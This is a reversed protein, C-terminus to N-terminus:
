PARAAGVRENGGLDRLTVVGTFGAQVLMERVAEGQDYGHELAILGGSTLHARAGAIIERLCGLGDGGDTLAGAPERGLAALHADGAAIYPPNSVIADFAAGGLPGYWSGLAFAANAAGLRAANERAVALAAASADTLTVRSWPLDLALSLGICGSGAGLDAIAPRGAGRTAALAGVVYEVLTETDPRPVLTDPTVKFDRGWFSRVGTVYAVPMGGAVERVAALFAAEAEPPVALEPWAILKEKRCGLAHALLLRADALGVSQRAAAILAAAPTM